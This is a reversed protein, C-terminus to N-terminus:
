PKPVRRIKKGSVEFDCKQLLVLNGSKLHTTFRWAAGIGCLVAHYRYSGYYEKAKIRNFPYLEQSIAGCFFISHHFTKLHVGQSWRELVDM